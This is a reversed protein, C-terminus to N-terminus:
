QVTGVTPAKSFAVADHGATRVMELASIAWVDVLRQIEAEVLHPRKRGLRVIKRVEAAIAAKMDGLARELEDVHRSQPAPQAQGTNM